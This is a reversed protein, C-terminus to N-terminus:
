VSSLEPQSTVEEVIGMREKIQEFEAILQPDADKLYEGGKKCIVGYLIGYRKMEAQMTKREVDSMSPATHVEPQPEQLTRLNNLTNYVPEKAVINFATGFGPYAKARKIKDENDLVMVWLEKTKSDRRMIGDDGTVINNNTNKFKGILGGEDFLVKAGFRDTVFIVKEM